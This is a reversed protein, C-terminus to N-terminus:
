AGDLQSNPLLFGDTTVLDVHPTGPWHAILERLIRSTTSKGVAVSGAVGIVFPTRAAPEGLFTSSAAHLGRTAGIYLDILRSLPLYVEVVEALDIPEGLGALRELDTETLKLPTNRRLRSWATRDLEVFPSVDANQGSPRFYPSLCAHPGGAHVWRRAVAAMPRSPSGIIMPTPM